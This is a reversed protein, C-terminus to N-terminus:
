MEKTSTEMQKKKKMLNITRQTRLLKAFEDNNEASAKNLRKNAQKWLRGIRILRVLRIVRTIRGARTGIRAGRGARALQGAQEATNASYDDQEGIIQTWIWSIDTILSVTSIIDLWFYFSNFYGVQSLSNISIEVVFCGLAISTIYNFTEDANKTFAAVKIDDGFLAYVTVITMFITAVWHNMFKHMKVKWQARVRM